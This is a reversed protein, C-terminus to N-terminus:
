DCLHRRVAALHRRVALWFLCSLFRFSFVFRSHFHAWVVTSVLASHSCSAALFMTVFIDQITTVWADVNPTKVNWADSLIHTQCPTMNAQAIAFQWLSACSDAHAILHAICLHLVCFFSFMYNVWICQAVSYRANVYIGMNHPIQTITNQIEVTYQYKKKKFFQTVWHQLM